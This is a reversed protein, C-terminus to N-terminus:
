RDTPGSFTVEEREEKKEVPNKPDATQPATILALISLQVACYRETKPRAPAPLQLPNCTNSTSFTCHALVAGVRPEWHLPAADCTAGQRPLDAGEPGAGQGAGCGCGACVPPMYGPPALQKGRGPRRPMCAFEWTCNWICDGCEEVAGQEVAVPRVEIYTHLAATFDFPKLGTNLVRMDARLLEGTSLPFRTPQQSSTGCRESPSFGGQQRGCPVEWYM